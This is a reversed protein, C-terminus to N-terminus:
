GTTPGKGARRRRGLVVGRESGLCGVVLVEHPTLEFVAQQGYREGLTVAGERGLGDVALGPESWDGAEAVGLAPWSRVGLLAVDAELRRNRRENDEASLPTSGPNAATVVHVLAAPLSAPDPGVLAVERGDVVALVATRLYADLLTPPTPVIM